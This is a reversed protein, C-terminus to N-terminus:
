CNYDTSAFSPELLAVVQHHTASVNFFYRGFFAGCFISFCIYIRFINEYLSIVSLVILMQLLGVGLVLRNSILRQRPFFYDLDGKIAVNIGNVLALRIM